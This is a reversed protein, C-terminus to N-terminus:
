VVCILTLRSQRGLLSTRSAYCMSSLRTGQVSRHHPTSSVNALQSIIHESQYHDEFGHRAGWDPIVPESPEPSSEIQRHAFESKSRQLPPKPRRAVTQSGIDDRTRPAGLGNRRNPASVASNPRRDDDDNSEIDHDTNGNTAVKFRSTEGNTPASNLSGNLELTPAM